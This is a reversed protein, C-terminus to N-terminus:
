STSYCCILLRKESKALPEFLTRFCLLGAPASADAPKNNQIHCLCAAYSPPMAARISTFHRSHCCIPYFLFLAYCRFPKAKKPFLLLLSMLSSQNKCFFRLLRYLAQESKFFGFWLSIRAAPVSAFPQYHALPTILASTVSYGVRIHGKAIFSSHRLMHSIKRCLFDSHLSTWESTAPASPSSGEARPKPSRQEVM